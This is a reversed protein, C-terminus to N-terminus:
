QSTKKAFSKKPCAIAGTMAETEAVLVSGGVRPVVHDSHFPASVCKKRDGGWHRLPAQEAQSTTLARDPYTRPRTSRPVPIRDPSQRVANDPANAKDLLPMLRPLNGEGARRDTRHVAHGGTAM